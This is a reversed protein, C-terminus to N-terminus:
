ARRAPAKRQTIQAAPNNANNAGRGHPRVSNRTAAGHPKTHTAADDADVLAVEATSAMADLQTAPTRASEEGAADAAALACAYPSSCRKRSRIGIGNSSPGIGTATM